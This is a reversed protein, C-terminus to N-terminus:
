LKIDTQNEIASLENLLFNIRMRYLWYFGSLMALILAIWVYPQDDTPGYTIVQPYDTV